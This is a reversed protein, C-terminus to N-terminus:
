IMRIQINLLIDWVQSKTATKFYVDEKWWYADNEILFGTKQIDVRKDGREVADTLYYLGMYRGNMVLNVFTYEPVWEMGVTRSLIFGLATLLNSEENQLGTNWTSIKM